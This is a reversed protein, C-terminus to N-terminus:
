MVWIEFQDIPIDENAYGQDACIRLEIYESSVQVQRHFWGYRNCCQNGSNHCGQGDWLPDEWIVGGWHPSTANHGSECYYHTGVFNPVDSSTISPTSRACPCILHVGEGYDTAESAGAVYSWIHKRPSGQTILIGNAYPDDITTNTLANHFFGEPNSEQYGRVRGCINTYTKSSSQFKLSACGASTNTRGCATQNTTNNTVTRLGTPCSDGQTTDFYAVRRWNASTINCVTVFVQSELYLLRDTLTRNLTQITDLLEAIISENIKSTVNDSVHNLDEETIIASGPAGKPGTPGIDGRDGKDGTRGPVGQIGDRGDRPTPGPIITYQETCTENCEVQVVTIVFVIVILLLIAPTNMKHAFVPYVVSTTLSAFITM